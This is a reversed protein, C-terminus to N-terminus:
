CDIISVLSTRRPPVSNSMLGKVGGVAFDMQSLKLYSRSTGRDSM